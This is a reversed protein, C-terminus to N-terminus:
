FPMTFPVAGGTYLTWGFDFRPTSDPCYPLMMNTVTIMMKATKKEPKAIEVNTMGLRIMMSTLCISMLHDISLSSNEFELAMRAKIPASNRM